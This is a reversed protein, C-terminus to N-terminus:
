HFGFLTPENGFLSANLNYGRGSVLPTTAMTALIATWDGPPPDSPDVPAFQNLGLARDFFFSVSENSASFSVPNSWGTYLGLGCSQGIARGFKAGAVLRPGSNFEM